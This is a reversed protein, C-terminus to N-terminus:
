DRNVSDPSFAPTCVAVYEAGGEHPTSYRVWEGARAVVAQGAGVQLTEGETEVQLTGQLVLTIEDFEPRQGPETWGAPGIMRAVSIDTSGTNVAGVYEEIVKPEVGPVVTPGSILEPM